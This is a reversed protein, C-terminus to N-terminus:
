RQKYRNSGNHKAYVQGNSVGFNKEGVIVMQDRSLGNALCLVELETVLKEELGLTSLFILDADAIRAIDFGTSYSVEVYDAISSELIM